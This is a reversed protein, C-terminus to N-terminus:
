NKMMMRDDKLDGERSFSLHLNIKDGKVLDKVAPAPFYITMKGLGSKLNMFGTKHDVSEVKVSMDHGGMPMSMHYMGRDDWSQSAANDHEDASVVPSLSLIVLATITLMAAIPLLISRM